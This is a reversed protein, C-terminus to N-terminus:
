HSGLWEYLRGLNSILFWAAPVICVLGIAWGDSLEGVHGKKWLWWGLVAVVVAVLFVIVREFSLGIL